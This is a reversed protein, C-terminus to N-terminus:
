MKEVYVATKNKIMERREKTTIGIEQTLHKSTTASYDHHPGFFWMSKDYDWYAVVSNYSQYYRGTDAHIVCFNTRVQEVRPAQLVRKPIRM